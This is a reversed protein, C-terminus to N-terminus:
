GRRCFFLFWQKMAWINSESLGNMAPFAARLDLSVNAVIGDGHKGLEKRIALDRGMSWYFELMARNVQVAAKAQIRGLCVKVESLWNLYGTDAADAVRNVFSPFQREKEDKKCTKKKHETKM